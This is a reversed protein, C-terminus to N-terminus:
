DNGRFLEPSLCPDYLRSGWAKQLRALDEADRADGSLLLPGKELVASAQPTFVFVRGAERQRLALDAAALGSRYAPDPATWVDRRLMMCALSVAGVNHVKNMRDHWGGASVFLDENDCRAGTEPALIFGGHTIHKKEDTLVPTVGAVDPRQAYMMLERIFHPNEERVGADLILLFDAESSRAAEDLAGWRNKEDTVILAATLRPWATNIELEALCDRCADESEGFILAEVAANEDVEYWLRIERNVPAAHVTWGRRAEHEEVARCGSDLCRELDRHSMSHFNERWTYLVRPIHVIRDTKEACRLYLDHDQSGDFGSRLGGAAELLTKKMVAMHCIYNDSRLTDPCFDPKWHPDMHRRGDESMRDEDTYIMDPHEDAIVRAAQWLAEPSLVDDHDALAIYEGRALAAAANTNGSIGLNSEGRFVRFRSDAKAYRDLVARTEERTSCGDYLVAEWRSYTQALLSDLLVSLFSGKTNYVPIVVSILGAEPLHERQRRLEAADPARRARLRDYTGFARQVAKQWLRKLTYSTGHTRQYERIRELGRM